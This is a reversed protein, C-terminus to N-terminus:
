ENSHFAITNHRMANSPICAPNHNIPLCTHQQWQTAIFANNMSLFASSNNTDSISTSTVKPALQLVANEKLYLGSVFNYSSNNTDSISTSTVKPALQLVANEKLCDITCKMCYSTWSHYLHQFQHANPMPISDTQKQTVSTVPDSGTIGGPSLNLSLLQDVNAEAPAVPKSNLCSMHVGITVPELPCGRSPQHV